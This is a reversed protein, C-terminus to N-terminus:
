TFTFFEQIELTRCINQMDLINSHFRQFDASLMKAITNKVFNKSFIVKPSQCTTNSIDIAFLWSSHSWQFSHAFFGKQSKLGEEVNLASACLVLTIVDLEIPFVASIQLTPNNCVSFVSCRCRKENHQLLHQKDHGPSFFRHRSINGKRCIRIERHMWNRRCRDTSLFYLPGQLQQM